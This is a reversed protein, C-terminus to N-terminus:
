VTDNWDDYGQGFNFFRRPIEAARVGSSGRRYRSAKQDM